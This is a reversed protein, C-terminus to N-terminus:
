DVSLFCARKEKEVYRGGDAFFDPQNHYRIKDRCAGKFEHKDYEFEHEPLGAWEAVVAVTETFNVFMEASDIVLIQSKDYVRFWRELQDAYLGRHLPNHTAMAKYCNWLDASTANEGRCREGYPKYAAEARKIYGKAQGPPHFHTSIQEELSMYGPDPETKCMVMRLQSFYRDTPDRLVVVLKARPLVMRMRYPAIPSLIYRPSSEVIVGRSMAAVNKHWAPKMKPKGEELCTKAYESLIRGIAGPSLERERGDGQWHGLKPYIDPDQDFFHVENPMGTVLPHTLLNRRLNTTGGKQQVGIITILPISLLSREGIPAVLPLPLPESSNSSELAYKAFSTYQKLLGGGASEDANVGLVQLKRKEVTHHPDRFGDSSSTPFAGDHQASARLTSGNDLFSVLSIVLGVGSAAVLLVAVVIGCVWNWPCKSRPKALPPRPDM